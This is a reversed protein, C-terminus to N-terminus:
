GIVGAQRLAALKQETYALRGGYIEQNHEGLRPAPRVARWPSESMRFAMGPQRHKGAVPHDVEAFFDRAALQPSDLLEPITLVPGLPAKAEQGLRYIEEKTHEKMWEIVRPQIEKSHKPREDREQYRPDKSWEPNGMMDMLYQWQHDEPTTIVVYGDKCPVLGGISSGRRYDLVRDANRRISIDIRQLAAMAEFKSIDVHQGEGTLQSSYLAALTAVGANLGGDYEGIFGGTQTPRDDRRRASNGGETANFLQIHRAEYDRYPGTQGFATISTLVLRPNLKALEDYGLGLADFRGPACDEIVIDAGNALERFIQQGEKAELDLTIGLKNTNLHVFLASKEPHPVDGAFPGYARAPDGGPPEIKIVEAGLDALLRGCYPGAIFGAYELVKVGALARM